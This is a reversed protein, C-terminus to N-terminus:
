KIEMFGRFSPCNFNMCSFGFKSKSILFQLKVGCIPCDPSFLEAYFEKPHGKISITKPSSQKKM